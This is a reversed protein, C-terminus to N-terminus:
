GDYLTGGSYRAYRGNFPSVFIHQRRIYAISGEQNRYKKKGPNKPTIGVYPGIQVRSTDLNLSIITAQLDGTAGAHAFGRLSGFVLIDGEAIIQAGPNVDALVIVDGAYRVVEGSRCTTKIFLAQNQRNLGITEIEQNVLTNIDTNYTAFLKTEEDPIVDGLNQQYDNDTLGNQISQDLVKLALELPSPEVVPESTANQLSSLPTTEDVSANDEESLVQYTDILGETESQDALPGEERSKDFISIESEELGINEHYTTKSTSMDETTFPLLDGPGDDSEPSKSVFRDSSISGTAKASKSLSSIDNPDFSENSSLNPSLIDPSCWFQAVNLGSGSELARKIKTLQDKNLIRQGVNVTVDGKSFLHRNKSLYTELGSLVDTFPKQDDITFNINTGRGTVQLLESELM